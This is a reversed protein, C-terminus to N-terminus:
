STGGDDANGSLRRLFPFILKEQWFEQRLLLYGCFEPHNKSIEALFKLAEAFEAVTQTVLFDELSHSIEVKRTQIGTQFISIWLTRLSNQFNKSFGSPIEVSGYIGGGDANSSLRRLFPSISKPVSGRFESFEHFCLPFFAAWLVTSTLYPPINLIM